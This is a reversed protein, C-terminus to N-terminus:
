QHYVLVVQTHFTVSATARRMLMLESKKNITLISTTCHPAACKSTSSRSIGTERAIERPSKSTGPQGEQSYILDNVLEITSDTRVSHRRGSGLLREVRGTSDIRRVFYYRTRRKWQRAPFEAIMRDVSWGKEIRLANILLRDEVTLHAMKTM